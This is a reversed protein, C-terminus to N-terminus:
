RDRVICSGLPTAENLRNYNVTISAILPQITMSCIESCCLLLDKFVGWWTPNVMVVHEFMVRIAFVVWECTIWRGEFHGDKQFLHLTQYSLVDVDGVKGRSWFCSVLDSLNKLFLSAWVMLVTLKRLSTWKNCSRSDHTLIESSMNSDLLIKRTQFDTM